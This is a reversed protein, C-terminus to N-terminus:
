KQFQSYYMEDWNIKKHLKVKKKLANAYDKLIDIGESSKKFTIKKDKIEFLTVANPNIKCKKRLPRPIVGEGKEGVTSRLQIRVM